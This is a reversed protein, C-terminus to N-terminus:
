RANEVARLWGAAVAFPAIRCCSPWLPRAISRSLDLPFPSARTALKRRLIRVAHSFSLRDSDLGERQAAEHMLCRVTWHALLLGYFEQEVLEPTKSRLVV